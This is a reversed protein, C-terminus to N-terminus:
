AWSCCIICINPGLTTEKKQIPNSPTTFYNALRLYGGGPSSVVNRLKRSARDLYGASTKSKHSKGRKYESM